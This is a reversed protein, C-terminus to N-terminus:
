RNSGSAAGRESRRRPTMRHAFVSPMEGFLDGDKDIAKRVVLYDPGMWGRRVFPAFSILTRPGGSVAPLYKPRRPPLPLAIVPSAMIVTPLFLMMFITRYM